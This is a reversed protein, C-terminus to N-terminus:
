NLESAQALLADLQEETMEDVDLNRSTDNLLVAIDVIEQGQADSPGGASNGANVSESSGAEPMASMANALNSAIGDVSNNKMLELISIDLAFEDRIRMQLEIAMLSDLGYSNIPTGRDIHEVSLKLTDALMQEFCGSIAAHLEAEGQKRLRVWRDSGEGETDSVVLEAFRSTSSAPEFKAWRQWDVDFIGLQAVPMSMLEAFVSQAQELSFGNIGLHALHKIINGQAAMGTDNLAGWNVSTAVLGQAHRHHALNDLFLNAAVYNAQNRNGILASVSSYLVFCDLDLQRTLSHLHWAGLAKPRMVKALSAGDMDLLEQDDLLGAAHFVGALPPMDSAIHELLAQLPAAEAVDVAAAH